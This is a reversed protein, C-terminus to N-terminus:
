WPCATRKFGTISSALALCASPLLPLPADRRGGNSLVCGKHQVCGAVPLASSASGTMLLREHGAAKPDVSFPRPSRPSSAVSGAKDGLYNLCSGAGWTIVGVTSRVRGMGVHRGFYVLPTLLHLSAPDSSSKPPIAADPWAGCLRDCLRRRSRGACNCASLAVESRTKSPLKLGVSRAAPASGHRATWRCPLPTAFRRSQSYLLTFGDM